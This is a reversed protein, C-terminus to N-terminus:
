PWVKKILLKLSVKRYKNFQHGDLKKIAIKSYIAVAALILNIREM